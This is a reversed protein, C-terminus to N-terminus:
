ISRQETHHSGSSLSFIDKKEICSRSLIATTPSSSVLSECVQVWGQDAYVQFMVRLKIRHFDERQQFPFVYVVMVM